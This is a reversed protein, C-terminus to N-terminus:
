FGEYIFTSADYSPGYLGYILVVVFLALWILWRFPLLQKQMWIRAYGFKERLAAVVFLAAIGIVILTIDEPAVGLDYVTIELNVHQYSDFM